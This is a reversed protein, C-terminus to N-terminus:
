RRLLAKTLGFAQIAVGLGIWLFIFDDRWEGKVACDCGTKHLSPIYTLVAYMYMLYLPLIILVSPHFAMKPNAIFVLALLLAGVSYYKMFDRRWDVSCDCSKEIKLIWSLVILQFIM